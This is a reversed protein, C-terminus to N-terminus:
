KEDPKGRDEEGVEADLTIANLKGDECFRHTITRKLQARVSETILDTDRTIAVADVVTEVIITVM